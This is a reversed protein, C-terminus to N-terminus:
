SMGLEEKKKHVNTLKHKELSQKSAFNKNCTECFYVRSPNQITATAMPIEEDLSSRNISRDIPPPRNLDMKLQIAREIATQIPPMNNTQIAMEKTEIKSNPIVADDDVDNPLNMKNTLRSETLSQRNQSPIQNTPIVGIGTYNQNQKLMDAVRIAIKAEDIQPNSQRVIVPNYAGQPQKITKVSSITNRKRTPKSLLKGLNINVVQTQKQKQKQKQKIKKNRRIKVAM